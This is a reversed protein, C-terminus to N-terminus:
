GAAAGRNSPPIQAGELPLTFTFIAGGTARASVGITGGHAQVIGRAIALGLGVGLKAAGDGQWFPRFVVERDEVPIGPGDDIVRVVAFPPSAELEAIVEGEVPAFKIANGLLNALVQDIRAADCVVAVENPPVTCSLHIQKRSALYQLHDVASQVVSRLDIHEHMISLRGSELKTATLLDDILHTMQSVSRELMAAHTVRDVQAAADSLMSAHMSVIGLPVRLDHAVMAMVQATEDRAMKERATASSAMLEDIATHLLKEEELSLAIENEECLELMAERFHSLERLAEPVTFHMASRQQAHAVGLEESAGMERGAREGWDRSRHQALRELLRTLLIPVHDELAPRTLRNASPVEPDDLIRQTWREVLADRRFTLLWDLHRDSREHNSAHVDSM